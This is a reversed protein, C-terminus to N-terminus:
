RCCSHLSRSSCAQKICLQSGQTSLLDFWAVCTRPSQLIESHRFFLSRPSISISHPLSLFVTPVLCSTQLVSRGPNLHTVPLTWGIIPCFSLSLKRAAKLETRSISLIAHERARLHPHFPKPAVDVSGVGAALSWMIIVFSLRQRFLQCGQPLCPLALCKGLTM